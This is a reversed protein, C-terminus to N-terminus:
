AARLFLLRLRRTVLQGGVAGPMFFVLVLSVAILALAVPEVLPVLQVLVVLVVAEVVVVVVMDEQMVKAQLLLRHTVPEAMLLVVAEAVVVPDVLLQVQQGRDALVQIVVVEGVVLVQLTILYQIQVL